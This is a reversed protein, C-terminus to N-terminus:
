LPLSQSCPPWQRQVNAPAGARWVRWTANEGHGVVNDSECSCVEVFRNTRSVSRHQHVEPGLPTPWAFLNIWDNAFDSGFFGAHERNGFEIDIVM